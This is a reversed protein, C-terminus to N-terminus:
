NEHDRLLPQLHKAHEQEMAQPDSHQSSQSLSNSRVVISSSPSRRIHSQPMHVMTASASTDEPLLTTDERATDQSDRRLTHMHTVSRTRTTSPLDGPEMILDDLEGHRLTLSSSPHSTHQQVHSDPPYSMSSSTVKSRRANKRQKPKLLNSKSKSRKGRSKKEGGGGSGKKKRTVQRASSRSIRVEHRLRTFWFWWILTLFLIVGCLVAACIGFTRRSPALATYAARYVDREHIFGDVRDDYTDLADFVIVMRDWFESNNANRFDPLSLVYHSFEYYDVLSDNNTDAKTFVKDSHSKLYSTTVPTVLLALLSCSLFFAFAFFPILLMAGHCSRSRHLHFYGSRIRKLSGLLTAGGLLIYVMFGLGFIEMLTSYAASGLIWTLSSWNVLLFCALVVISLNLLWTLILLVSGLPDGNLCM